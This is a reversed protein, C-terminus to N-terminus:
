DMILLWSSSSEHSPPSSLPLWAEYGSGMGMLTSAVTVAVISQALAVEVVEALRVEIVSEEKLMEFELVRLVEVVEMDDVEVSKAAFGELEDVELEVEDEEVSGAAETTAVAVAVPVAVVVAAVLVAEVVVAAAAATRLV